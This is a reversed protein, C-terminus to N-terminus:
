GTMQVAGNDLIFRLALHREGFASERAALKRSCRGLSGGPAQLLAYSYMETTLCVSAAAAQQSMMRECCLFVKNSTDWIFEPVSAIIEAYPISSPVPYPFALMPEVPM